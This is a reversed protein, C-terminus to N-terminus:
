FHFKQTLSCAVTLPKPYANSFKGGKESNVGVLKERSFKFFCQAQSGELIRHTRPDKGELLPSYLSM